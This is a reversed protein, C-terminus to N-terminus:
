KRGDPAFPLVNKYSLFVEQLISGVESGPTTLDDTYQPVAVATRGM